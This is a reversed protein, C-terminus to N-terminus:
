DNQGRHHKIWTSVHQLLIQKEQSSLNFEPAFALQHLVMSCSATFDTEKCQSDLWSDWDSGTLSTIKTRDYATIATKRLLVPLQRYYWEEDSQYQKLWALANRRYANRKYKKYEAIVKFCLYFFLIVFTIKWGITQPLWSIAEPPPPEVIKELLYNGWPKDFAITQQTNDVSM